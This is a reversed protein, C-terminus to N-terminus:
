ASIDEGLQLREYAVPDTFALENFDDMNMPKEQVTDPESTDNDDIKESNELNSGQLGALEALNVEEFQAMDGFTMELGDVKLTKVGSSGAVKILECLETCTLGSTSKQKSRTSSQAKKKVAGSTTM